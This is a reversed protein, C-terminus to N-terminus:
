KVTEPHLARWLLPAALLALAGGISATVLQPWSFMLSLAARQPDPIALLPLVLKVIGLYLTLTKAGAALAMGGTALAYGAFTRKALPKRCLLYLLSIYVANGLAMMPVVPPIGGIGFLVAFFPSLLAVTLGNWFGVALVTLALVLNVCSGTVFQGAPRTVAQLAILVALMVATQTIWLIRKKM